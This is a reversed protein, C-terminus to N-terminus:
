SFYNQPEKKAKKDLELIMLTPIQKFSEYLDIITDLIDILILRIHENSISELKEIQTVKERLNQVIKKIESM